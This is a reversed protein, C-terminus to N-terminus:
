RAMSCRRSALSARPSTSWRTFEDLALSAAPASAALSIAIEQSASAMGAGDFLRYAVSRTTGAPVSADTYQYSINEALARVAAATANANLSIVLPAGASGGAISGIVVGGHSVQSGSVGIQGAGSGESRVSLADSAGAGSTFYVWLSGGALSANASVQLDNDIVQPAAM